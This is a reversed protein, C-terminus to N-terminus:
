ALGLNTSVSPLYGSQFLLIYLPYSAYALAHEQLQLWPCSLLRVAQMLPYYLM